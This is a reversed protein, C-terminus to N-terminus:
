DLIGQGDNVDDFEMLLTVDYGKDNNLVDFMIIPVVIESLMGFNAPIVIRYMPLHFVIQLARILFMLYKMMSDTLILNFLFAGLFIWRLSEKTNGLASQFSRTEESDLLQKKIKSEFTLKELLYTETTCM